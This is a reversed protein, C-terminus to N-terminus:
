VPQETLLKQPDNQFLRIFGKKHTSLRLRHLWFIHFYPETQELELEM